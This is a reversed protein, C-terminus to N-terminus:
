NPDVRESENYLTAIHDAMWRVHAPNADLVDGLALKPEILWEAEIAASLISARDEPATPLQIIRRAYDFVAKIVSIEDQEKAARLALARSATLEAELADHKYHAIVRERARQFAIQDRMTIDDKLKLTGFKKHTFEPM